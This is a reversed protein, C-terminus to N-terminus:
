KYNENRYSNVIIYDTVVERLQTETINETWKLYGNIFDILEDQNISLMYMVDIQTLRDTNILELPNGRFKKEAFFGLSNEFNFCDEPKNKLRNLLSKPLITENKKKQIEIKVQNEEKEEKIVMSRYQEITQFMRGNSLNDGLGIVSIILLIALLFRHLGIIRKDM